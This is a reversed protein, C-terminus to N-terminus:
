VFARRRREMALRAAIPNCGDHQQCNAIVHAAVLGGAHGGSEKCQSQKDREPAKRM